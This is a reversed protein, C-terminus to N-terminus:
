MSESNGRFLYSKLIQIRAANEPDAVLRRGIELSFALLIALFAALVAAVLVILSRKPKSKLEPPTARDLVQIITATRAEDIKAIEFQKALLEFITEYYKVDRLKRVYALGAEPVKSTPIQIDGRGSINNRELIALQGRLGQLEAEARQLDPNQSTAFSRMARIQVEKAAIQGRLVAVSEIIAKAQGELHILGTTEQVVKLESEARALDDKAARLQQEFFLRRQAAETVALRDTLRSLEEVYANALAAAVRPDTDDVEVTIVGQKNASVGSRRRLEDVSDTMTTEDYREILGFRLVLREAITRSELMAVYLDSNNRLGFDAPNMGLVPGLQGVLNMAVSQSQQPPLISTTGTYLNPLLLSYVIALVVISVFTRAMVRWHKALVILLDFVHIEEADRPPAEAAMDLQTVPAEAEVQVTRSSYDPSM